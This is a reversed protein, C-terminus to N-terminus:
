HAPPPGSTSAQPPANAPTRPGTVQEAMVEQIARELEERTQGEIAPQLQDIIILTRGGAASTILLDFPVIGVNERPVAQRYHAGGDPRREVTGTTVRPGFYRVFLEPRYTSEYAHHREASAVETIGRPLPIGVVMDSSELLQGDPGRDPPPAEPVEIVPPPALDVVEEGSEDTNAESGCGLSASVFLVFAFRRPGPLSVRRERNSTAQRM